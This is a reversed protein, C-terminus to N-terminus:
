QDKSSLLKETVTEQTHVLVKLLQQTKRLSVVRCWIRTRDCTQEIRLGVSWWDALLGGCKWSKIIQCPLQRGAVISNFDWISFACSM